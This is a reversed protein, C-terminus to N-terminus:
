SKKFNISTLNAERWAQLKNTEQRLLFEVRNFKIRPIHRNAHFTKYAYDIIDSRLPEPKSCGFKLYDRYLLLVARQLESHKKVM